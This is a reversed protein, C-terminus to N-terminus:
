VRPYSALLQLILAAKKPPEGSVIASLPNRHILFNTTESDGSGDVLAELREVLRGPARAVDYWEVLRRLELERADVVDRPGRGFPGTGKVHIIRAIQDICYDAWLQRRGDLTSTEIYTDHRDYAAFRSVRAEGAYTFLVKTYPVKPLLFREQRGFVPELVRHTLQSSTRRGDPLVTIAETRAVLDVFVDWDSLGEHLKAAPSSGARGDPTRGFLCSVMNVQCLRSTSKLTGRGSLAEYLLDVLEDVTKRVQQTDDTIYDAGVGGHGSIYIKMRDGAPVNRSWARLEDSAAGDFYIRHFRPGYKAQARTIFHPLVRPEMNRWTVLVAHDPM